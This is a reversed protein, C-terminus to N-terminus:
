GNKIEKKLENVKHWLSKTDLHKWSERHLISKICGDTVGFLEGIAKHTKGMNIRIKFISYIDKEKLKHAYIREGYALLRNAKAHQMNENQTTWELNIARNDTKIGNKHNVQNKTKDHNSSRFAEAILRSLRKTSVVGDRSLDVNLYGHTNDRMKLIRPIKRKGNTCILSRIKGMNSVQYKDEYGVVDKWIEKM